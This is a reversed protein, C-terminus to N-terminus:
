VGKRRNNWVRYGQTAVSFLSNVLAGTANRSFTFSIVGTDGALSGAIFPPEQIVVPILMTGMILLNRKLKTTLKDGVVYPATSFMTSSTRIKPDELAKINQNTYWM